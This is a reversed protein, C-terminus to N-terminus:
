RSTRTSTPRPGTSQNAAAAAPANRRAPESGVGDDDEEGAAIGLIMFLGYRRAMTCASAWQQLSSILTNERTLLPVDCSIWGGGQHLLYTRIFSQGQIVIERHFHSLGSVGASRAIESVAAIDAYRYNVTGGQRTQITATSGKELAKAGQQWDALAAFLGMQQEPSPQYGIVSDVAPTPPSQTTNISAFQAAVVELQEQIVPIAEMRSDFVQNAAILGRIQSQTSAAWTSMADMRSLLGQVENAQPPGPDAPPTATDPGPAASAAARSTVPSDSDLIAPPPLEANTSYHQPQEAATTM